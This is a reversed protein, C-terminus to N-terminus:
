EGRNRYRKRYTNRSPMVQNAVNKFNNGGARMMNNGLNNLKESFASQSKGTAPNHRAISSSQIYSGLHQLNNGMTGIPTNGGNSAMKSGFNSIGQGVKALVGGGANVGKSAGKAAIGAGVLGAGAAAGGAISSVGKMAQGFGMMAMMQERGSNASVNNGIFKNAVQSGTLLFSACGIFMLSKLLGNKVPADTFFTTEQIQGMVLATLGIILMIVAGQLMLSVLQEVLAGRRQKNGISTAYVVPSIVFLFLFEIQRRALMMGSFFIAYLFFAGVVTAMIWNIEYKYKEELPDDSDIDTVFKDNYMSKRKFQGNTIYKGIDEKKYDSDEKYEDSDDVYMVLMSEGITMNKNNLANSTYGSLKISFTTAEAFLFTSLIILCTCKIIEKVIQQVSLGEDPELIKMVFKWIAFLGLLTLSVILLGSHFNSFSKNDSITDIINFGNISKLIDFLDDILSFIFHLLLWGLTRLLDLAKLLM